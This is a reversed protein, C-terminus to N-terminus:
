VFEIVAMKSADGARQPLKVVRTYGGARDAYKPAVEKILRDANTKTGIRATLIRHTNMDGKKARTVMPEIFKKLEKAKAETTTIKGHLVLNRALSKLLARRQNRVRGFKRNTNHHRM